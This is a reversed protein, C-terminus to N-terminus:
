NKRQRRGAGALSALQKRPPREFACGLWRVAEELSERSALPIEVWGAFGLRAHRVEEASPKHKLNQEGESREAGEARVGPCRLARQKDDLRLRVWVFPPEGLRNVWPPKVPKKILERSVYCGLMQKGRFFSLTGMMARAQVGPWGALEARLAEALENGLPRFAWSEQTRDPKKMARSNVALRARPM